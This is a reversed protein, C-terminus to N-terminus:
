ITINVKHYEPYMNEPLQKSLNTSKNRFVHIVPINRSRAAIVADAASLGAGVILVPDPNEPNEQLYLDLEIELSRVDHLLWVPDIQNNSIELKNPLDSSGNALVLYNCTFSVRTKKHLDYAEVLWKPKTNNLNDIKKSPPDCDKLNLLQTEVIPVKTVSLELSNANRLFNFFSGRDNYSKSHVSDCNYNFSDSDCCLSISREKFRRRNIDNLKLQMMKERYSLNQSLELFDTNDLKLNVVERMKRDPSLDHKSFIERRRKCCRDMTGRRQARSIIFNLASSISCSKEKKCRTEQREIINLSSGNSMNKNEDDAYIRDEKIGNEYDLKSDHPNLYKIKTVVIGTKFKKLLNLEKVYEEYYQAVNKASARKEFGDRAKYPLGPLAMWSGLSLTLIHPDMTHWSGGPPGKGM